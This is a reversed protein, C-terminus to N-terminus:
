AHVNMIITGIAVISSLCPQLEHQLDVMDLLVLSVPAGCIADQCPQVQDGDGMSSAFELGVQIILGASSSGRHLVRLPTVAPSLSLPSGLPSAGKVLMHLDQYSIHTTSGRLYLTPVYGRQLPCKELDWITPKRVTKSRQSSSLREVFSVVASNINKGICGPVYM